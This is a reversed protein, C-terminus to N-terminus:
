AKLIERKALVRELLPKMGLERAISIAEDQLEIAKEQDGPADRGLLLESYNVLSKALEPGYRALRCQRISTSYREISGETDGMSELYRAAVRSPSFATIVDLARPDRTLEDATTSQDTYSTTLVRGYHLTLSSALRINGVSPPEASTAHTWGAEVLGHDGVAEGIIMARSTVFYARWDNTAFKSNAISTSLEPLLSASRLDGQEARLWTDAVSVVLPDDTFTPTLQELLEQANAWEGRAAHLIMLVLAAQSANRVSGIKKSLHIAELLLSLADDPRATRNAGMGAM